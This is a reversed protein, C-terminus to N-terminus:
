NLKEPHYGFDITDKQLKEAWENFDKHIQKITPKDDKM